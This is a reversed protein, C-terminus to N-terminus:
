FEGILLVYFNDYRKSDLRSEGFVENLKEEFGIIVYNDPCGFLEEDNLISFSNNIAADARKVLNYIKDMAPVNSNQVEFRKISSFCSEVLLTHKWFVEDEINEIALVVQANKVVSEFAAGKMTTKLARKLTLLRHM